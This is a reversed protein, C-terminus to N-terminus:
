VKYNQYKNGIQKALTKDLTKDAHLYYITVRDAVQGVRHVRDEAQIIVGPTWFYQAFVVVNAAHLTIGQYAATISLLAVKCKSDNQFRTINEQRKNTSTKGDIRMFDVKKKTLKEDYADMVMKHHCFLLFKIDADLLTEVFQFGGDVKAMGSLQFLEMIPDKDPMISKSEDGIQKNTSNSMFILQSIDMKKGQSEEIMKKIDDMQKMLNEIEKKHKASVEISIKVRRKPPLETLVDKKLRRIMMHKTLWYNLESNNSSGNYDMIVRMQRGGTWLRKEQPDCYIEGFVKFAGFIDPRLIKVLNFLEKPRALVPTGTILVIRKM